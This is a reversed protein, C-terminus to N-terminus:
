VFLGVALLLDTLIVVLVNLGLAPILRATDDPHKLVVAAAKVALPLTALAALLTYPIDFVFPAVLIISYVVTLGGAYIVASKKKGFHIVLHHRGGKQDAEADPFENLFLLLATLIGPPISIIVSQASLHGTLVCHVGLVVCTGLTLGAAFDGVLWRALHSTYFRIAMAGPIILALLIWGRVFCFYLGIGGSTLLTGYAAAKVARPSTRGAQLLGSGGSFPTRVTHEDIRTRCDSLENFLNVSIHALVVGLLLLVSHGGEHFGEHHATAVGILVLAVSLILFPGRVQHFWNSLRVV